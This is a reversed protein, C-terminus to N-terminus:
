DKLKFLSCVLIGGLYNESDLLYFRQESLIREIEPLQKTNLCTTWRFFSYLVKLGIQTGWKLLSNTKSIQFDTIYLLGESNLNDKFKEALVQVYANDFLDLLYNCVIVDFFQWEFDEVGACIFTVRKLSNPMNKEIRKKAYMIMKPSADVYTINIEENQELVKQLFFGTGGGLILATKQTSLHSLFALQSKNIRDFSAISVVTDYVATIRDFGKGVEKSNNYSM